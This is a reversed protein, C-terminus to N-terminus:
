ALHYFAPNGKNGYHTNSYFMQDSPGGKVIRRNPSIGEGERVYYEKYGGAGKVGPLLGDHNGHPSGWKSMFQKIKGPVKGGNKAVRDKVWDFEAPAKGSAINTKCEDVAIQEEGSGAFDNITVSTGVDNNFTVQRQVAAAAGGGTMGSLLGEASRGAVVADAVRDAHREYSDGAKGVGGSLQVGARQQVVHAAEHAATHLSPAEKFAVNTGTAYAEAGIAKSAEAAAGGVHAKVGSVDHKGFSQQIAGLHPMAGGGGQVGAAAARQVDPGSSIPGRGQVAAAGPALAAVQEDYSGLGAVRQRM